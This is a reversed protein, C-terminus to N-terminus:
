PAEFQCSQANSFDAAPTLARASRFAKNYTPIVLPLFPPAPM